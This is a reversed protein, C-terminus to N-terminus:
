LTRLVREGLHDELAAKYCRVLAELVGVASEAQSNSHSEGVASAEPTAQIVIGERGAKLIAAELM